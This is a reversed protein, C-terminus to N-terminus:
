YYAERLHTALAGAKLYRLRSSIPHLRYYRFIITCVDRRIGFAFM